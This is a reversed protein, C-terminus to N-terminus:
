GGGVAELIEIRNGSALQVEQYRSGVVVQRDVAVAVRKGGLGLTELLDAVTCPSGVIQAEGNIELELEHQSAEKEGL